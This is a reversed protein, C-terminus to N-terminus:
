WNYLSRVLNMIDAFAPYMWYVSYHANLNNSFEEAIYYM